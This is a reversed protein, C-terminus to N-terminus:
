SSEGGPARDPPSVLVIESPRVGERALLEPTQDEAIGHLLLSAQGQDFANRISNGFGLARYFSAAFKIAAEDGIARNMGIACDVHKTIEEAQPRSYCANLLVVRVNGKLVGFLSLLAKKSVRAPRDADDLLLIEEATSGHGSFHVIHPKHQNLFQLLDDPRVAWQTILELSDRYESARIMKTIERVEEDLRLPTTSVPNASLFLIKIKQMREGNTHLVGTASPIALTTAYTCIALLPVPTLEVQWNCNVFTLLCLAAWVVPFGLVIAIGWKPSLFAFILGLLGGLTVLVPLPSLWGPTTLFARDALTALIHAHIEMGSMLGTDQALPSGAFPTKHYDQHDPTTDGILVVAGKVRTLEDGPPRRGEAVGLVDRFSLTKFTGVPGVFNIRLMQESDLPIPDGGVQLRARDDDWDFTKGWARAYLALAFQPVMEDGDRILLQQRRVSARDDTFNVFGLDTPEPKLRWKILWQPPPRQWAGDVWYQPLVVNEAQDVARGLTSPDGAGGPEGDNESRKLLLDVGVASAGLERVYLVVKALEPSFHAAPKGLERYSAEDVGILVVHARTPSPRKGRYAFRADLTGDELIRLISTRTLLWVVLAWGLGQLVGRAPKTL